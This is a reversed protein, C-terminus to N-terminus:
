ACLIVFRGEKLRIKQYIRGKKNFGDTYVTLRKSFAPDSDKEPEPYFSYPDAVRSPYM